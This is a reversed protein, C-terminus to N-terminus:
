YFATFHLLVTNGLLAFGGGRVEQLGPEDGAQLRLFFFCVLDMGKGERWWRGREAAKVGEKGM